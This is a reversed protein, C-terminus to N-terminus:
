EVDDASPAVLTSVCYHRLWEAVGLEDVENAAVRLLFAEAADVDPGLWHHGHIELFVTASLFGTRKNGDHFFQTTAFGHLYAAAKSFVDPFIEQGGFGSRPRDVIGLFGGEDRVGAGPGCFAENIHRISEATLYYFTM